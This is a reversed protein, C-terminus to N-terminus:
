LDPGTSPCDPHYEGTTRTQSHTVMRQPTKMSVDSGNTRMFKSAIQDVNDEGLQLSNTRSNPDENSSDEIFPVLHKVNFVDSMKIHSSIKLWYANPNIKKIIEVPGVKHAALKNYQGVHFRDKTWIAWVFDGEEFEIARRKKDASAKYKATSEQLKQITAKHGEQIQIILDEATMNTRKMDPIPALDLPAHPNSGFIITFLSLGISKNTSHNYTFEAQFLRTDWSKIHEGVM